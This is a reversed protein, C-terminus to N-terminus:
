MGDEKGGVTTEIALIIKRCLPTGELSFDPLFFVAWAIM